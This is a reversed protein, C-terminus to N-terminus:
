NKENENAQIDQLKIDALKDMIWFMLAIPAAIRSFNRMLRRYFNAFGLFIEIDRVLKSELWTKVIEIKEEKIKISQTM